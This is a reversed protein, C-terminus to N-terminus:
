YIKGEISKEEQQMRLTENKLDEMLKELRKYENINYKIKQRLQIKKFGGEDYNHIKKIIIKSGDFGYVSSIFINMHKQLFIFLNEITKHNMKTEVSNILKLLLKYKTKSLEKIKLNLVNFIRDDISYEAIDRNQIFFNRNDISISSFYGNGVFVSNNKLKFFCKSERHEYGDQIYSVMLRNEAIYLISNKITENILKKMNEM